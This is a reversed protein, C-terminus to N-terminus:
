SLTSTSLTSTSLISSTPNTSVTTTTITTSVTVLPQNNRKALENMVNNLWILSTNMWIMFKNNDEEHRKNFQFKLNKAIMSAKELLELDEKSKIDLFKIDEIDVHDLIKQRVDKECKEKKESDISVEHLMYRKSEINADTFLDDDFTIHDVIEGWDNNTIHDTPIKNFIITHKQSLLVNDLSNRALLRDESITIDPTTDDLVSSM